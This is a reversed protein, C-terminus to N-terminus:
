FITRMMVVATLVEFRLLSVISAFKWQSPVLFETIEHLFLPVRYRLQPVTSCAPLDRSRMGILHIKKEEFKGLEESRV